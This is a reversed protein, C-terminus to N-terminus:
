CEKITLYFSQPAIAFLDDLAAKSHLLGVMTYKQGVLICGETDKTTNGAHILIHSRNPVDNIAYCDGHKPSKHRTVHYRGTPISSLNRINQIYDLELTACIPNTNNILLVGHTQDGTTIRKLTLELPM